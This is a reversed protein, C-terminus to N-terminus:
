RVNEDNELVKFSLLATFKLHSNPPSDNIIGTVIFDALKEYNITKGMPDQNGFLKKAETETLVISNPEKLATNPDGKIFKYTFIKFFSNEAWAFNDEIFTKAGITLHANSEGIIRVEEQIIDPYDNKLLPGIPPAVPALYFSSEGDANLWERTVRYIRDANKNYRDYSLEFQVYLIILICAAMGISLGAINIFSYGKYKKINRLAIKFYNLLLEPMWGRIDWPRRYNYDVLGAKRFEKGVESLNGINEKAKNFAEEASLGSAIYEDVQDRLHSELETVAGDELSRNKRLSRKWEKVASELEFM